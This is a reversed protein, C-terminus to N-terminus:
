YKPPTTGDRLKDKLKDKDLETMKDSADLLAEIIKRTEHNKVLVIILLAIFVGLFLLGVIWMALWVSLSIETIATLM